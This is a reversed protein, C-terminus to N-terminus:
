EARRDHQGPVYPGAAPMSAPRQAPIGEIRPIAPAHADTGTLYDEPRLLENGEHEDHM